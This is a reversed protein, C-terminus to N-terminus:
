GKVNAKYLVNFGCKGEWGAVAIFCYGWSVVVGVKVNSLGFLSVVSFLFGEFQLRLRVADYYGWGSLGVAGLFRRRLREVHILAHM